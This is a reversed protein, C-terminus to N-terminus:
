WSLMSWRIAMKGELQIQLSLSMITEGRCERRASDYVLHGAEWKEELM